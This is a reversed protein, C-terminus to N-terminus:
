NNNDMLLTICYMFILNYKGEPTEMKVERKM